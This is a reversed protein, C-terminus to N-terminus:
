RLNLLSSEPTLEVASQGVDSVWQADLSELNPFREFLSSLDLSRIDDASDCVFSFRAQVDSHTEGEEEHEPEEHEAEGGHEDENIWATAVDASSLHCMAEANVILLEGSELTLVAEEVLQVEEDATPEYEFGFLNFAPTDLEVEMERGSWAVTLTAAGHEHVGHERRKDEAEPEAIADTETEPEDSHPETAETLPSEAVNSVAPSCAAAGFLLTFLILCYRFM